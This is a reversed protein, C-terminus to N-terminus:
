PVIANGGCCLNGGHSMVPNTPDYTFLDPQDAAPVKTTLIGDGTRTNAKGGSSLYFTTPEGGKPPWTDTTKWQNLGMVYYRVKPMTDMVSSHEGKVTPDFFQYMIEQYNLRADGMDREGVVTHETARTYACHGVPAIILW